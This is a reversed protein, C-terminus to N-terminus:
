HTVRFRTGRFNFVSSRPRIEELTVDPAIMSGQPLVQNNILLLRQKPDDSYVTGTIALAPIQRRLAEPLESLLPLAVPASAAPAAAAAPAASKRAVKSAPVVAIAAGTNTAQAAAKPSAVPATVVTPVAVPAAALVPAHPADTPMRWTSVAVASAVLVGAVAMILWVRNKTTGPPAAGVGPLQRAHLGPVAGRSREADARKLAELIYSM